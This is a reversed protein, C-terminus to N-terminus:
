NRPQINQTLSDNLFNKNLLREFELDKRNSKNDYDITLNLTNVKTNLSYVLVTNNYHKLDVAFFIM